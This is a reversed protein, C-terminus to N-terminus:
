CLDTTKFTHDAPRMELPEHFSALPTFAIAASVALVKAFSPLPILVIGPTMKDSYKESSCM